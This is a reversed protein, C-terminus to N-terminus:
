SASFTYPQLASANALTSHVKFPRNKPPTATETPHADATTELIIVTETNM